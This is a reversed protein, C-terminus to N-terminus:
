PADAIPQATFGVAVDEGLVRAASPANGTWTITAITAGAHGTVRVLRAQDDFSLVYQAAGDRSLTVDHGKATVDFYKAYHAPDAIWVPLYALALAVDDTGVARTV